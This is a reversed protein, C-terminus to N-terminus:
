LMRKNEIIKKVKEINNKDEQEQKEKLKKEEEIKM